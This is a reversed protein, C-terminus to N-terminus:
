QCGSTGRTSVYKRGIIQHHFGQHFGRDDGPLAFSWKNRLVFTLRGSSTQRDISKIHSRGALMWCNPERGIRDHNLYQEDTLNNPFLIYDFDLGNHSWILASSGQLTIHRSLLYGLQLEGYSRKPAINAAVEPSMGFAYQGQVFAKPLIPDLRRGVNVGM